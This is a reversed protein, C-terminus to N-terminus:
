GEIHQTYRKMTTVSTFSTIYLGVQITLWIAGVEVMGGNIWMATQICGFILMVFPVFHGVKANKMVAQILITRHNIAEESDDDMVMKAFRKLNLIKSHAESKFILLGGMAGTMAWAVEVASFHVAIAIWVLIMMGWVIRMMFETQTFSVSHSIEVLGKVVAEDVSDNNYTSM